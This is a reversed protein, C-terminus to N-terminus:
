RCHLKKKAISVTDTDTLLESLGKDENLKGSSDVTLYSGEFWYNEAGLRKGYLVGIGSLLKNDKNCSFIASVIECTEADELGSFKIEQHFHVEHTFTYIYCGRKEDGNVKVPVIYLSKNPRHFVEVIQSIEVISNNPSIKRVANALSISIRNDKIIKEKVMDVDGSFATNAYLSVAVGFILALNNQCFRILRKFESKM